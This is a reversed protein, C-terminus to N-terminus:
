FSVNMVDICLFTLTSEEKYMFPFSKKQQQCRYRKDGGQLVTKRSKRIEGSGKLPCPPSSFILRVLFDINQMRRLFKKQIICEESKSTESSTFWWAPIWSHTIRKVNLRKNIECTQHKQRRNTTICQLMNKQPNFSYNPCVSVKITEYDWLGNLRSAKFSSILKTSLCFNYRYLKKKKKKVFCSFFTKWTLTATSISSFCCM